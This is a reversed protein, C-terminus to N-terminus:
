SLPLELRARVGGASQTAIDVRADGGYLLDLRNRVNGLGVGDTPIGTEPLGPGDDTVELVLMGARTKATLRIAVAAASANVAHKISNEILPQLILAPVVRERCDADVDVEFSFRPGFRIKEVDLYRQVFEVEKTLPLFRDSSQALSRRLLDGLLETMHYAEPKRDTEILAAISNLANFLFHPNIQMKLADMRALNLENELLSSRLRADRAARDKQVNLRYLHILLSGALNLLYIVAALTHFGPARSGYLWDAWNDYHVVFPLALATATFLALHAAVGLVRRATSGSFLEVLRYIGISVIIWVSYYFLMPGFIQLWDPLSAGRVAIFATTTAIVAVIAWVVIVAGLIRAKSMFLREGFSRGRDPEAMM